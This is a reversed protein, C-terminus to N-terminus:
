ISAVRKKEYKGTTEEVPAAINVDVFRHYRSLSQINEERNGSGFPDLGLTFGLCPNRVRSSLRLAIDKPASPRNAVDVDCRPPRNVPPVGVLYEQILVIVGRDRGPM